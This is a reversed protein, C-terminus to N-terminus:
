QTNGDTCLQIKSMHVVIQKRWSETRRITQVLSPITCYSNSNAHFHFAATKSAWVLTVGIRYKNWHFSSNVNGDSTPNRDCCGPTIRAVTPASTTFGTFLLAGERKVTTAYFWRDGLTSGTDARPEPVFGVGWKKKKKRKWTELSTINAWTSKSIFRSSNIVQTQGLYEDPMKEEALLTDLM